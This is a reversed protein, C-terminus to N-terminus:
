SKLRKDWQPGIGLKRFSKLEALLCSVQERCDFLQSFADEYQKALEAYDHELRTNDDKLGAYADATAKLGKLLKATHAREADLETQVMRRAAAEADAETIAQQLEDALAQAQASPDVLEDSYELAAKIIPLSEVVSHLAAQADSADFQITITAYKRM